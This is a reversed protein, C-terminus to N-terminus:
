HYAVAIDHLECLKRWYKAKKAKLDELKESVRVGQDEWRTVPQIPIFEDPNLAEYHKIEQNTLRLRRGYYWITINKVVTPPKTDRHRQYVSVGKAVLPLIFAAAVCGGVAIWEHIGM